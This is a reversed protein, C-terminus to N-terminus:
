YNLIIYITIAYLSFTVIGSVLRQTKNFLFGIVLALLSNTFLILITGIGFGISNAGLKDSVMISPKDFVLVLLAMQAFTLVKLGIYLLIIHKLNQITLIFM